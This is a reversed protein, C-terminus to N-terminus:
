KLSKVIVGIGNGLLTSILLLVCGQSGQSSWLCGASWGATQRWPLSHCLQGPVGSCEANGWVRLAFVFIRNTPQLKPNLAPAGSYRGELIVKDAQIKWHTVFNRVSLLCSTLNCFLVDLEPVGKPIHAGTQQACLVVRMPRMQTQSLDASPPTACSAKKTCNSCAPASCWAGPVDQRLNQARIPAVSCWGM